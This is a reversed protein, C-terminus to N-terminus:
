IHIVPADEYQVGPEPSILEGTHPNYCYANFTEARNLPLPDGDTIKWGRVTESDATFTRMAIGGTLGTLGATLLRCFKLAEYASINLRDDDQEFLLSTLAQHRDDIVVNIVLHHTGTGAEELIREFIDTARDADADDHPLTITM